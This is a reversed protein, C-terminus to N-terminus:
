NKISNFWKACELRNNLKEIEDKNGYYNKYDLMINSPYYDYLFQIIKIHGNLYAKEFAEISFKISNVISDDVTILWKVVELHGHECAIEFGAFSYTSNILLSCNNSILWQAFELRGYKCAQIFCEIDSELIGNELNHVHDVFARSLWKMVNLHNGVCAYKVSLQFTNYNYASKSFDFNISKKNLNEIKLNDNYLMQALELNGNLCACIFIFESENIEGNDFHNKISLIECANEPSINLCMKQMENKYKSSINNLIADIDINTQM